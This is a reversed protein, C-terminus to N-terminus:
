SQESLGCLFGVIKEYYKRRKLIGAIQYMGVAGIITFTEEM